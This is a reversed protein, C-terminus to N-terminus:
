TPLMRGPCVTAPAARSSRWPTPSLTATVTVETAEHGSAAGAGSGRTVAVTCQRVADHAPKPSTVAVTGAGSRPIGTVATATQRDADPAITPPSVPVNSGTGALPEISTATM